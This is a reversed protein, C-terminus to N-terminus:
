EHDKDEPKDTDPKNEPPKSSDPKDLDDLNLKDIFEEFASLQDPNIESGPKAPTELGPENEMKEVFTSRIDVDPYTGALAFITKEVLIPVHYRVALAIADSPRADVEILKGSSELVLKGYFVDERLANIEIHVLRTDLAQFINRILDHTQPRSVEVEQLAITISETEYPGIWIPLYREGNQEKLIVIRQTSTLSVRVSDIVANILESM